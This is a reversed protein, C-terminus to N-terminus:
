LLPLSSLPSSNVHVGYISHSLFIISILNYMNEQPAEVQNEAKAKM